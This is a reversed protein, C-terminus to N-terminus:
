SALLARRLQQGLGHMVPDDDSHVLYMVAFHAAWGRSREWAADTGGAAQRVLEIHDPVLSWAAAFDTAPDGIAIDGWDIIASLRGDCVLMNRLHLDGHLWVTDGDIPVAAAGTFIEQLESARAPPGEAEVLLSLNSAFSEARDSLPGGRYPNQPASTHEDVVVHLEAFFEGLSRAAGTSEYAGTAAEVGEFWPTISWAWPFYVTPEGHHVPVPVQLTTRASIDPLWRQEHDILEAAMERHPVRVLLEDGLKLITNDWGRNLVKLPDDAFDPFQEALLRRVLDVSVDVEPAPRDAM